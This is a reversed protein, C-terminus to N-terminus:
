LTQGEGECDVVLKEAKFVAAGFLTSIGYLPKELNRMEQGFKGLNENLQM